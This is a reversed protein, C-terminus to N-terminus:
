KKRFTKAKANKMQEHKAIRSKELLSFVTSFVVIALILFFLGIVVIAM